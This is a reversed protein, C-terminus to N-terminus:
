RMGVLRDALGGPLIAAAEQARALETSARCTPLRALLPAGLRATLTAVNAELRMMDPRVPNAIWGALDLDDGRIAEATLLAHNLCGLRLGVVMVVPLGLGVAVDAMTEREGLPVRWGGAGEVVLFDAGRAARYCAAVIRDADLRVGAEAAAIHPAIFPELTFPNVTELKARVPAVAALMEADANVLRGAIRRCGAAVPKCAAAAIGAEALRILLAASFLTKGVGTDTGTVFVGRM